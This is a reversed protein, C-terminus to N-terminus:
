EDEMNFECSLDDALCAGDSECDDYYLDIDVYKSCEDIYAIALRVLFDKRSENKKQKIKIM